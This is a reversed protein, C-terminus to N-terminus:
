LREMDLGLYEITINAAAKWCKCVEVKGGDDRLKEIWVKQEPSLRGTESKFEIWLASHATTAIPLCTDPVGPKLGTLQMVWRQMKSKNSGNPIAFFLLLEPREASNRDIWAFFNAQVWDESGHKIGRFEVGTKDIEADIQKRAHSKM